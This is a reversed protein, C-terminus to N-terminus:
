RWINQAKEPLDRLQVVVTKLQKIELSCTFKMPQWKKWVCTSGWWDFVWSRLYQTFLDNRPTAFLQFTVRPTITDRPKLAVNFIIWNQNHGPSGQLPIRFILGSITARPIQFNLTQFGPYLELFGYDWQRNFNLIWTGTFYFRSDLVQFRSDM